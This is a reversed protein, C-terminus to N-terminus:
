RLGWGCLIHENGPLRGLGQERHVTAVAYGLWIGVGEGGEGDDFLVVDGSAILGVDHPQYGLAESVLGRMGGHEALLRLAERETTYAWREALNLGTHHYIYRATFQCCDVVGWCFPQGAFEDWARAAAVDWTAM